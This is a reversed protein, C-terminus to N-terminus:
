KENRFLIRNIKYDNAIKNNVLDIYANDVKNNLDVNGLVVVMGKGDEALKAANADSSAESVYLVNLKEGSNVASQSIYAKALRGMVMYYRKGGRTEDGAGTPIENELIFFGEPITDNSYRTGMSRFMSFPSIGGGGGGFMGMMSSLDFGGLMGGGGGGFMGMISSLDFGGGGLGPFGSFGGGMLSSLGGGGGGMMGGLGGLMGGGGFSDMLGGGMGGLGGGMGGLGGLGADAGFGSGGLGAVSDGGLLSGGGLGSDLGGGLGGDLGGGLGSDLGGGLGSDLGGGGLGSDLGGGLGADGGFGGNEATIASGSGQQNAPAIVQALM